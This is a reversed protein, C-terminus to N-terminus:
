FTEVNIVTSLARRLVVDFGSLLLHSACPSSRLVFNLKPAGLSSRLIVLSDHASVLKLRGVARSLTECFNKLSKSIASGVLLPAGLLTAQGPSVQNFSALPNDLQCTGNSILECKSVNLSLGIDACTASLDDVDWGVTQADGGVTIDDLFGFILGSILSSLLPHIAICILLPGLPHGQQVGKSSFVTHHGYKLKSPSGYALQCFKYIEPVQDSMANLVSSRYVSNFANAFDLKTSLSGSPMNQM